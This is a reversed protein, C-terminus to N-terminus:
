MEMEPMEGKEIEAKVAFAGEVVALDGAALGAQVAVRNGMRAGLQVQRGTFNAGGKGDPEAIFVTPRGQVMQIAEAPIVPSTGQSQGEVTVTALMEPKLRALRNNVLGRVPLTRTEPDLGAGVAEIRATFTDAPYAPVIFSLRGGVRLIGSMAEPASIALWLKSPDTVIVLPAGAEVVTGPAATRALVVGDLPSRLTIQGGASSSAGLTAATSRARRVEADAQALASRALEDDAVAREYDQRPIAKLILLREARDRASKAYTSQARRSTVEAEAKALDAQATGAEPSQLSVLVQGRTVRDGPSVRVAIVRGGGPAGLRATRDENPVVQGPVSTSGGAVGTEVPAWRVHGHQIQAATLSTTLRATGTDAMGPMGSTDAQGGPDAKAGLRERSCAVFVLAVLSVTARWKM